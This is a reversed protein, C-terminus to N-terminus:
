KKGEQITNLVTLNLAAKDDNSIYLFPRAPINVSKKLYFLAETKGKSGKRYLFVRGGSKTPQTWTHYGENKLGNILRSINGYRRLLSRTKASAPIWLFRGGKATKTGGFQNLAAGQRNTGIVAKEADSRYTISSMLLGTDQLPKNNRKVAVTLPANRKFNGNRIKKQTSSVMYAGIRKNIEASSLNLDRKKVTYTIQM